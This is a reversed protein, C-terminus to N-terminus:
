LFGYLYGIFWDVPQARNLLLTLAPGYLPSLRKRVERKDFVVVM